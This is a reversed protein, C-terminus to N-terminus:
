TLGNGSGLLGLGCESGCCLMSLLFPPSVLSCTRPHIATTTSGRLQLSRRSRRSVKGTVSDIHLLLSDEGADARLAKALGCLASAAGQFAKGSALLYAGVVAVGAGDSLDEGTGNAYRVAAAVAPFLRIHICSGAACATPMQPINCVM